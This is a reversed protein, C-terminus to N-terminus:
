RSIAEINSNELTHLKKLVEDYYNIGSKHKLILERIAMIATKYEEAKEYTRIFYFAKDFDNILESDIKKKTFLKKFFTSFV